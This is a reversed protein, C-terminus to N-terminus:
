MSGVQLPATQQVGAQKDNMSRIFSPIQGAEGANGTISRIFLPKRGAPPM